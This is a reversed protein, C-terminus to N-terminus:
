FVMDWIPGAVNRPKGKYPLHHNDFYPMDNCEIIGCREQTKWSQSIDAIIFDIGVLPAHLFKSVDEFLKINDPHVEDTVDTTTGGLGWNIKQNLQVRQGAAPISTFTLGQVALEAKASADLKIPSFYPGGRHPNTNEDAVLDRVTRTGDGYVCPQDRRLTAILKASVVTPRYVSGQLEEEVMVFPSLIKALNFAAILQSENVIHMTTHRSASGASPKVVLPTKLTKFLRRAARKTTIKAGNAIPFGAKRLEQVLRPKENIWWPARWPPLPVGDFDIVTGNPLTAIFIGKPAGFLRFERMVIGRRLAEDWLVQDLLLTQDDYYNLFRGMLLHELIGYLRLFTRGRNPNPKGPALRRSLAVLPLFATDLLAGLYEVSHNTNENCDRCFISM